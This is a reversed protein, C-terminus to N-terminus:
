ENNQIRWAPIWDAIGLYATDDSTHFPIEKPDSVLKDAKCRRLELGVSIRNM